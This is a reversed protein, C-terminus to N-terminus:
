LPTRFDGELARREVLRTEIGALTPNARRLMVHIWARETENVAVRGVEDL